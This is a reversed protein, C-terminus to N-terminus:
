RVPVLRVPGLLGSPMAEWGSADFPKYDINVFNIEHFRKWDVKRRDLDAIRNAALNTVDVVLTNHGAKVLGSVDLRHPPFFSSGLSSGNLTARCTEGVKGLDLIFSGELSESDFTITYRATGAFSRLLPDARETWSALDRTRYPGPLEPGGDIFQVNWEGSIAMGEGAPARYPYAQDAVRKGYIRIVVSEGPDLVLRLQNERIEALGHRSVDAPDLLQASVFPRALSFYRDARKGSHNMVFYDWGDDRTRRVMRFGSSCMLEGMVGRAALVPMVKRGGTVVLGRGHPIAGDGHLSGILENLENRRQELHGFGPVDMPLGGDFVVMAGADALDLMRKLVTVPLLKAGPVVLVKAKVDGSELIGNVVKVQELMRGSVADYPIGANWLEMATKHFDTGYLWESQNHITFLSLKGASEKAFDDFPFYLLVESDPRGRQLISQIRALYGTFAPMDHWLGGNPGMNTSAYFLWGPWPADEPSYPIGHFFVHNVGSLYLFDAAEKLAAPTVKFHEGLWTFSEASVLKRGNLHAAAAPLGMMPIQADEVHRFIETEPIDAVAYHDLLNGPSGHAQNRTLSGHRNAWDHWTSLYDLHMDSLTARWDARVRSITDMDGVGVFAPLRDLLDYGNRKQFAALLGPTWEADYYEFSDHFQSRPMPADFGHFAKDFTFLYRKMADASYPDLVDGSGGPAARKVKQIPSKTTLGVVTWGRGNPAQWDIRGDKALPALDVIEGGDDPIARLAVISGVLKEGYSGGGAVKTKLRSLGHSAMDPAVQPGGFPWGTGTTMDVGLGLRKAERTTHALAAMWKESLFDIDRNEYGVAGYIPCIEVGGLGAAAFKELESTINKDDVGSGLWWWRTWPKQEMGIEPWGVNGAMVFGSTVILILSVLKM